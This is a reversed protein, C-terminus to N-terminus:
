SDSHGSSNDAENDPDPPTTNSQVAQDILASLQQGQEASDDFFFRISPVSRMHLTESLRRRLFGSCRELGEQTQVQEAPDLLTYYVSAVSLDRSVNVSSITLMDSIRPDKVQVRIIQSLERQIHDAVRYSRPYDNAM